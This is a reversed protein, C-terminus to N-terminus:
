YGQRKLQRIREHLKEKDIQFLEVFAKSRANMGYNVITCIDEISLEGDYHDFEILRLSRAMDSLGCEEFRSHVELFHSCIGSKEKDGYEVVIGSDMDVILCMNDILFTHEKDTISGSLVELKNQM